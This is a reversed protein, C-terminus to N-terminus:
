GLPLLAGRTRVTSVKLLAGSEVGLIGFDEKGWTFCEGDTTVAATHFGGCAISVQVAALYIVMSALRYTEVMARVTFFILHTQYDVHNTSVGM